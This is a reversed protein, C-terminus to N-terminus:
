HTGELTKVRRRLSQIEKVLLPVLKSDDRGWQAEIVDSDDGVTVADPYVAFEEQAVFGYAQHSGNYKWDWSRVKLADIIPGAEPADTINDKLRADSSTNYATATGNTTISGVDGGAYNFLALKANTNDVRSLFGYSTTTTGTNYASISGKGTGSQVEMKFIGSWGGSTTTGVLVSQDPACRMVETATGGNSNTYFILSAGTSKYACLRGNTGDYDMQMGTVNFNGSAGTSKFDTTNSVEGQFSATHYFTANGSADFSQATTFSTAGGVRFAMTNDADLYCLGSNGTTQYLQTHTGGWSIAQGSALNLSGAITLNGGSTLTFLDTFSGAGASAARWGIVYNTPSGGNRMSTRWSGRGSTKVTETGDTSVYNFAMYSTDTASSWSFGVGDDNSLCSILTSGFNAAAATLTGTLTPSASLVMSGTGTVSNSLTVGGYTLAYSLTLGGASAFSAASTGTNTFFDLGATSYLAINNNGAGNIASTHGIYGQGVSNRQLYLLSGGGAGSGGNLYFQTVTAGTGTNTVNVTGSATIAAATLTGTLTPSASLVMNGTGTVANSLTVGGYTLASNIAVGNYTFYLPVASHTNNYFCFRGASSGVGDGIWWVEGGASTNNVGFGNVSASPYSISLATSGFNNAGVGVAGSFNAAAATITGTFTPSASLVMNGTGTVANSLTVGGYTLASNLLTTGTVALANTGITAGGLALSTAVAAGAAQVKTGDSILVQGATFGSTTTSNATIANPGTAGTPGTPGTAGTSGTPGTPGTPGTSGTSGTSGTPGTPGVAGTSGTPGTPGLQTYMVQTASIAASPSAPRTPSTLSSQYALTTNINTSNWYVTLTDGAAADLVWTCVSIQVTGAGGLLQFDQTSNPINTGNQALWVTVTPNTGTSATFALESIIQYKGAYTFTLVGSSQTVGNNTVTTDLLVANASSTGANSQNATSVFFGYYGLAGGAGTAGTTGTPGTPGTNGTSGTPGTPGTNGQAGTPGTPGTVGQIGQAGTPGTPGAGTPGVSGTPGTPGIVGQIGQAGTPGTPGVATSAAGTPGTAGQVGQAGTPGTPGAVSSAAGTPGTPGTNGQAGTPGTTGSAGSSGTPGTPGTVSPGTIGQAGQAGTPGTPGTPGTAGTVGTPGTPGGVGPVGQAGTPGTAGAPGTPGKDGTGGTPGTPGPNLGALQSTTLRVSIGDQVAEMQETGNLSTAFPLQPITTNAM